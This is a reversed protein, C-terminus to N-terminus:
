LGFRACIKAAAADALAAAAAAAAADDADDTDDMWEAKRSSEFTVYKRLNLRSLQLRNVLRPKFTIKSCEGFKTWRLANPIAM